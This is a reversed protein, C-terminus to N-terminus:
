LDAATGRKEGLWLEERGPETRLWVLEGDPRAGWMFAVEHIEGELTALREERGSTWERRWAVPGPFRLFYLWRGDGPVRPYSGATVQECSLAVVDCREIRSDQTAGVLHRGDPTWELGWLAVPLARETGSALDRIRTAVMRSGALQLYAIEGGDPSVEPWKESMWSWGPMVVEDRQTEVDLRRLASEARDDYYYLTRDDGAWHLSIDMRGSGFTVQREKGGAIPMVFLNYAGPVRAFFAIRDGRHSLEPMYMASRREYVRHREGTEPDLRDIVHLNRQNTYLLRQGDRSLRPDSDEGAGRTIPQPEGGGAAVRWLTRSGGHDSSFLIWKGDPSWDLGGGLFQLDTLREPTGGAAPIRWLDGLPRRPDPWFYAIWKGDPSFTADALFSFQEPEIGPLRHPESGDGHATWIGQRSVFVLRTGDASLRPRTGHEVLHRPSGGLPPIEWIGDRARAYVIRDGAPSWDPSAVAVDSHTLQQADGGALSRIWIQPVSAGDDRVFALSGGDPSLVGQREAAATESVLRFEYDPQAPPRTALYVAGAIAVAALGALAAIRGTARRGAAVPAIAEGPSRTSLGAVITELESRVAEASGPREDPDKALLRALLHSVPPPLGDAPAPEGTLVGSLVQIPNEGAFARRGTLMEYLVCGLSFLDSRPDVREGRAQEPSMYSPTGVLRGPATLSEPLVATLADAMVEGSMAVRKVLGFDLIKVRDGPGIMLNGPKLDRHVLGLRHAAALGDAVGISLRVARELPLAGRRLEEALSHGAVLEMAIFDVGGDSDVEHITVVGPHNIGSAAQAEALFRRREQDGQAADPLVKVAVLRNLRLDRARYVIGMGGAGLEDLLEFHSLRGPIM